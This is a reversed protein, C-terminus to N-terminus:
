TASVSRVFAPSGHRPQHNNVTTFYNLPLSYEDPKSAPKEKGNVERREHYARGVSVAAWIFDGTDVNKLRRAFAHTM